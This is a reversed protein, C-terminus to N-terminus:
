DKRASGEIEEALNNWDITRLPQAYDEGDHLANGVARLAEAQRHAWANLDVDYLDAAPHDDPM